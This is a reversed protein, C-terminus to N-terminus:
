LKGGDGWMLDAQSDMEVFLRWTEPTGKGTARACAAEMADDQIPAPFGGIRFFSERRAVEAYYAEAGDDDLRVGLREADPLSWSPAFRLAAEQWVRPRVTSRWLGWRTTEVHPADTLRQLDGTQWLVRAAGADKAQGGGNIGNWFFLLFGPAGDGFCHRSEIQAIFDLPKGGFEPWAFGTAVDPLGGKKSLGVTPRAAPDVSGALCPVQHAEVLQTLAADDM